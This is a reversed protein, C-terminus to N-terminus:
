MKFRFAVWEVATDAPPGNGGATRPQPSPAREVNFPLEQATQPQLPAIQVDRIWGLQSNTDKTAATFVGNVSSNSLLLPDSVLTPQASQKQQQARGVLVIGGRPAPTQAAAVVEQKAVNVPAPTAQVVTDQSRAATPEGQKVVVFAVCAAAAMLSGVAYFGRVRKRQDAAVAAATPDFAVVKKGADSAAVSEEAVFDAALVKCAKQMRCYTQYVKRREPNNQVEAELRAADAASIEHDLYLNLLEIFESDKM